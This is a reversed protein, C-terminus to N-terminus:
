EDLHGALRITVIRRSRNVTGSVHVGVARAHAYSGSGRSVTASGEYITTSGSPYYEGSVRGSLKGGHLSGSFTATMRSNSNFSIRVSLSGAPTGSISGGAEILSGHTKSFKLTGSSSVTVTRALAPIASSLLLAVAALSICCLRIPSIVRRGRPTPKAAMAEGTPTIECKTM